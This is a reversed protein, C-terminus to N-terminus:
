FSDTLLIVDKLADFHRAVLPGSLIRKLTEFELQHEPLWLFPRRKGTLQRLYVIHHQNDPVFFVLQNCLGLFSKVGTQDVPVPFNSLASVRDPDPKVRRGLRHM